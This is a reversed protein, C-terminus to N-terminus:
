KVENLDKPGRGDITISVDTEVPFTVRRLEIEVEIGTKASTSPTDSVAACFARALEPFDIKPVMPMLM